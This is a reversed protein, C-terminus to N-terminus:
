WPCFCGESELEYLKPDFGHSLNSLVMEIYNNGQGCTVGSSHPGFYSLSATDRNYISAGPSSPIFALSDNFLKPTLALVEVNDALNLWQSTKQAQKPKTLVVHRVQETQGNAILKEMFPKGLLTCKCEIDLWHFVIVKAQQTNLGGNLQPIINQEIFSVQMKTSIVGDPYLGKVDFASVFRWFFSYFLLLVVVLATMCILLWSHKSTM